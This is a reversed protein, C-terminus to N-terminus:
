VPMTGSGARDVCTSRRRRHYRRPECSGRKGFHSLRCIRRGAREYLVHIWDVTVADGCEMHVRSGGHDRRDRYRRGVCLIDDIILRQGSMTFEAYEVSRRREDLGFERM